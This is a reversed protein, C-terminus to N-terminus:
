LTIKKGRWSAKDAAEAKIAAAITAETAGEAPVRVVGGGGGEIQYRVLLDWKGGRALDVAPTRITDLV